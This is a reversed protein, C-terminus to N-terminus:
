AGLAAAVRELNCGLDPPHRCHAPSARVGRVAYRRRPIRLCVFQSRQAGFSAVQAACLYEMSGEDDLNFCVGYAAADVRGKIQSQEIGFQQWQGPVAASDELGEYRRNLGAVLMVDLEEFQPSGIELAVTDLALPQVLALQEISGRARVEAPTKGFQDSFARTFAEHSNYGTDMALGLIDGAGGALRQAAQTLRRGRVYRMVSSGTAAGFARLLHHRSVGASAAIDALSIDLTLHGEIYWLAKEVPSM